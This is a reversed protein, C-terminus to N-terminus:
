EAPLRRQDEPQVAFCKEMVMKFREHVRQEDAQLAYFTLLAFIGALTIAALCSPNQKLGQTVDHIAGGIIGKGDDTQM